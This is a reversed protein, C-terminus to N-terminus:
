KDWGQRETEHARTEARGARRCEIEMEGALVAAEVAVFCARAADTAGVSGDAIALSVDRARYRLIRADEGARLRAVVCASIANMMSGEAEKRREAPAAITVKTADELAYAARRVDWFSEECRVKLKILDETFM